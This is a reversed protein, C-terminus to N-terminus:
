ESCIKSVTGLSFTAVKGVLPLPLFGLFVTSENDLKARSVIREEGPSFLCFQVNYFISMKCISIRLLTNGVTQLGLKVFIVASSM